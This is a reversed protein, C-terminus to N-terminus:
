TDDGDFPDTRELLAFNEIHRNFTDFLPTVGNVNFMTARPTGGPVEYEEDRWFIQGAQNRIATVRDRKTLTINAPFWLRVYDINEYDAGFRETTGAVRIGGDVIGRALCPISAYSVSEDSPTDPVDPFPEWVRIVEGTLPDQIEVYTGYNEPDVPDYVKQGQKLVSAVMNFRHGTICRLPM